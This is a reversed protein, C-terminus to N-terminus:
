KKKGHKQTYKPMNNKIEGELNRALIYLESGKKIPVFTTIGLRERAEAVAFPWWGCKKKKMNQDERGQEQEPAEQKQEQKQEKRAMM